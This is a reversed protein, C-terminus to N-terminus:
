DGFCKEPFKKRNGLSSKLFMHEQEGLVKEPVQERANEGFNRPNLNGM